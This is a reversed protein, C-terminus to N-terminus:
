GDSQVAEISGDTRELIWVLRMQLPRFPAVFAGARTVAQRQEVDPVGSARLYIGVADRAYFSEKARRTDYTYHMRDAHRHMTKLALKGAPSATDVTRSQFREGGERSSFFLSLAAGDMVPAPDRDNSLRGIALFSTGWATGGAQVRAWIRFRGGQNSCWLLWVNGNWVVAAPAENRVGPAASVVEEPASFGAGTRKTQLIVSRDGRDASWFLRLVGAPDIVAAPMQDRADGSTVRVPKDWTVGDASSIAWIDTPGRRRSEWFVWIRGSTDRAAAPRADPAAHSTLRVPASRTALDGTFTRAWLDTTKGRNSSWFLWMRAGDFLAAPGEDVFSPDDPLDGLVDIPAPDLGKLRQAWVRRRGPRGASARHAHWFLWVSGGPGIAASPEGDFADPRAQTIAPENSPPYLNAQPGPAGFGAGTNVAQYVQVHRSTEPANTMFVNNVFEKVECEYGTVRSVLSTLNPITGVTGFIEPAALIDTRQVEEALTRDPEWGIWAALRPLHAADVTLVDHLSLLGEATSRALDIGGGFIRLFRRLQGTGAQAAEREDFFRHAEPLLRYLLDGGGYSATATAAATAFPKAAFAGSTAAFAAYYYTTGPELGRAASAPFRTPGPDLAGRPAKSSREEDAIRLTRTWEGTDPNFSARYDTVRIDEGDARTSFRVRAGGEELVTSVIEQDERRDYDVALTVAGASWVVQGSSVTFTGASTEPAAGIRQFIETAGGTTVVRSVQDIRVVRVGDSTRDYVTIVVQEVAGGAGVYAALEAQVMGGEALTNLVLYRQRRVEPWPGGAQTFLDALDLVVLGDTASKPTSSRRRLVRAHPVSEATGVLTLDLDIREGRADARVDLEPM